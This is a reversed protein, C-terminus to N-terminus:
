GLKEASEEVPKICSTLLEMAVNDNLREALHGASQRLSASRIPTM